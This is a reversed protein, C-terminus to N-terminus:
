VGAATGAKEILLLAGKGEIYVRGDEGTLEGELKVIDGGLKRAPEIAVIRWTLVADLGSPVARKLKYGFELGYAEGKKTFYEALLSVFIGTSHGASAILGGFRTRAAMEPDHHAPNSDGLRMAVDSINEPTFLYRKTCTEGVFAM